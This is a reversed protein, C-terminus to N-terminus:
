RRRRPKSKRARERQANTFANIPEGTLKAAAQTTGTTTQLARRAAGPDFGELPGVAGAELWELLALRRATATGARRAKREADRRAGAALAELLDAESTRALLERFAAHPGACFRRWREAVRARAAAITLEGAHRRAPTM